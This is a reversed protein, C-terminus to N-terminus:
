KQSEHRSKIRGAISTVNFIRLYIAHSNVPLFRLIGYHISIDDEQLEMM